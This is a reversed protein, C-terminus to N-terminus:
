TDASCSVAPPGRLAVVYLYLLDLNPGLDIVVIHLELHLMHAAKQSLAVFDLDRHNEPAPLDGVRFAAKAKQGLHDFGQRIHSGHLRIGLQFAPVEGHDNGWLLGSRKGPIM